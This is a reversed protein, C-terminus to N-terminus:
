NARIAEIQIALKVEPSFKPLGFGIGFDARNFEGTADAGCWERKLMPHQICKFKNIALTVPKTVGHLTLEGNVAVPVDNKFTISNSKYTATPFKAVDFMDAGKAHTNLKEIGFDLTNADITIDLAGTKAARDLVVTGSTKTFKGRFVSMGAHDAEFSPFTHSSDINFTEPAAFASASFAALLAVIPHKINM